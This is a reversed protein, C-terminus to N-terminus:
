VMRWWKKDDDHQQPWSYFMVHDKMSEALSQLPITIILTMCENMM